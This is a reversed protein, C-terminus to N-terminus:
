DSVRNRGANKARYLGLDAGHVAEEWTAHENLVSYGFSATVPIQNHFETQEVRDRIREAVVRAGIATTGPLVALFEEGGWRILADDDRLCARVVSAFEKLIMDGCTHGYQDNIKKFYDIDTMVLALGRRNLLSKLLGGTLRHRNLAGTLPDTELFERMKQQALELEMMLFGLTIVLTAILIGFISFIQLFNSAKLNLALQAHDLSFITRSLFILAEAALAGIILQRGRSREPKKILVLSRITLGIQILTILSLGVSRATPIKLTLATFTLVGLFFLVILKLRLVQKCFRMIAGHLLVYVSSWLFCSLLVTGSDIKDGRLAYLTSAAGSVVLAWGWLRLGEQEHELTLYLILLGLALCISTYTLFVSELQLELNMM